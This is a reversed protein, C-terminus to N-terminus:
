FRGDSAKSKVAHILLIVYRIGEGAALVLLVIHVCIKNNIVLVKGGPKDASVDLKIITKVPDDYMIRPGM